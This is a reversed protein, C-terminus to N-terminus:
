DISHVATVAIHLADAEASSPIGGQSILKDALDLVEEDIPIEAIGDQVCSPLPKQIAQQHRWLLWSLLLFSMSVMLRMGGSARSKNGPGARVDCSPRATLYSPVSTEIYISKKM